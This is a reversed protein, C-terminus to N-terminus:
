LKSVRIIKFRYIYNLFSENDNGVDIKYIQKPSIKLSSIINIFFYKFAAAIERDGSIVKEVESSIEAYSLANGKVM